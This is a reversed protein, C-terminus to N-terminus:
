NYNRSSNMLSFVGYILAYLGIVVTIFRTSEFPNVIIILGMILSLISIILLFSNSFAPLMKKFYTYLFVLGLFLAWLGIITVFVTAVLQPRALIVGGILLGILGEALLLYWNSNRGRANFSSIIQMTGGVLISIAFYIGLAALTIGPFILAVLGFLISLVGNLSKLNQQFFSGM